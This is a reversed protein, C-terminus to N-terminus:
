ADKAHIDEEDMYLDLKAAHVAKLFEASSLPATEKASAFLDIRFSDKVFSVDALFPGRVQEIRAVFEPTTINSMCYVSLKDRDYEYPATETIQSQSKAFAAAIASPMAGAAVRIEKGKYLWTDKAIPPRATQTDQSPDEVERNLPVTLGHSTLPPKM